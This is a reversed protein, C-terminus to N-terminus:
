VHFQSLAVPVIWMQQSLVRNKKLNQKRGEGSQVTCASKRPIEQRRTEVNKMNVQIKM